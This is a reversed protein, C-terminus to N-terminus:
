GTRSKRHGALTLRRRFREFNKLHGEGVSWRRIDPLRIPKRVAVMVAQELSQADGWHYWAALRDMVCQTPDYLHLHGYRTKRTAHTTVPANGIGSPGGPFEVYYKSGPHVYHRGPHKEFGIEKMAINLAAYPAETVFDLDFSEYANNTYISVVSGGVLLAPIGHRELAGSVLAAVQAVTTKNTIRPNM